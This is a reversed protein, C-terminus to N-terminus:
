ILILGHGDAYASGQVPAPNMRMLAVANYTAMLPDIKGIGSASKTILIANGKQEAKANGVCWAMLPRGGHILRGDALASETDRIVGNLAFGQPIRAVRKETDIEVDALASEINTPGYNDVGVGHEALLGAAEIRAVIAAMQAGAESVMDVFTLDGDKEFEELKTAISKRITLVGRHAWAHHWSLWTRTEKLRGMVCFGFLDDLGGDDAGVVVVESLDLLADLTLSKDGAAGWVKAGSWLGSASTDGIQVNLHKAEFDRLQADGETEAKARAQLLTELDVSAGLNPNAIKFNVPDRHAEAELMATPFEYIIPMFSPDDILGDRVGRAYDLKTKFVGSPVDDSMTSLSIVFGEPRSMLGGTAERFMSMAGSRKGFQWVEDILVVTAKSGAVADTDAAIVHLESKTELHVIRKERRYVRFLPELGDAAFEENVMEAMDAAPDFSNDAITKTPALILFEASHRPNLILVTMMIGAAITSKGNKKSICLFFEKILQRERVPDYAGFIAAVLDLLWPRCVEGATPKGPIDSIRLSKFRELGAAAEEPFLPACPVLSEGAVIRREWDPCATSWVPPADFPAAM